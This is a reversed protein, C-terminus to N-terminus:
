AAAAEEVRCRRALEVLWDALPPPTHEREDKRVHPRWGPMGKRFGSWPCIVREAQGLRIPMDPVDRPQCGVIYLLTPKDARHGWWGQFIGFTFGWRDRQGPQPLDPM